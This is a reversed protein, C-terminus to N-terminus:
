KGKERKKKWKRKEKREGGEERRRRGGRGRERVGGLLGSPGRERGVGGAWGARRAKRHACVAGPRGTRVCLRARVRREARRAAVNSPEGGAAEM